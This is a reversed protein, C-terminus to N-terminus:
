AGAAEAPLGLAAANVHGQFVWGQTSGKARLQVQGRADVELKPPCPTFYSFVDDFKMTLPSLV